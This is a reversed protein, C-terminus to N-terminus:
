VWLLAVLRLLAMIAVVGGTIAMLRWALWDTEPHHKVTAWTGLPYIVGLVVAGVFHLMPAGQWLNTALVFLAATFTPNQLTLALLKIM